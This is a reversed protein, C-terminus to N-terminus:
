DISRNGLSNKKIDYFALVTEIDKSTVSVGRHHLGPLLAQAVWEVKLYYRITEALIEIRHDISPLPDSNIKELSSRQEMQQQAKSENHSLYLYMRDPLVHRQIKEEQVLVRLPDHVRLHLLQSLEKQTYGTQSTHVKHTLTVKLNGDQSFGVGEFFWLGNSNFQAISQLTYYKGAHTFSSLSALQSMDRFLTRRSRDLFEQLQNITLIHHTKFLQTLQAIVSASM